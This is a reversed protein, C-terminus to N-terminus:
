QLTESRRVSASLNVNDFRKTHTMIM